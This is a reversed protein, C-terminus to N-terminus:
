YDFKLVRKKVESSVVDFMRVFNSGDSIKISINTIKEQVGSTSFSQSAGFSGFKFRAVSIKYSMAALAFYFANKLPPHWKEAKKLYSTLFVKKM